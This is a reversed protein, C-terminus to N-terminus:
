LHRRMSLDFSFLSNIYIIKEKLQEDPVKMKEDKDKQLFIEKIDFVM